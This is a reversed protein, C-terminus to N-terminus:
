QTVIRIIDNYSVFLILVIFFVLAVQQIGEEVKPSLRRGRVKEVGLFLVHGGDLIPIPLLNFIALAVGLVAMLQFIYIIGLDTAKGVISAIGIPGAVAEKFPMQGSILWWIGKYTLVTLSLITEGARYFAQFPNYRLMVVEDSPTIGIFGMKTKKGWVNKMEKVKPYIEVKFTESEREVTLSLSGTTKQHIIEAMENWYKVEKEDIAVIRDGEKLGRARAPFDELTSGIGSTSAPSGVMLIFFFLLFSLLYNSIPGACVIAIRRRIPKSLYEWPKGQLKERPNEGAMKIYGGFPIASLSYRTEGRMLGTIEPGMGLSFKEVKVGMRKAVIFHGFEHALIVISFVFVIVILKLVVALILEVM